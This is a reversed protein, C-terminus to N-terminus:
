PDLMGLDPTSWKEDEGTLARDRDQLAHERHRCRGRDAAYRGFDREALFLPHRLATNQAEVVEHSHRLREEDFPNTPKADVPQVFHAARQRGRRSASCRIATRNRIPTMCSVM